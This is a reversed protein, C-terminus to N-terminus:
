SAHIKIERIKEMYEGSKSTNRGLTRPQTQPIVIEDSVPEELIEGTPVEDVPQPRVDPLAVREEVLPQKESVPKTVIREDSQRKAAPADELPEAARRTDRVRVDNNGDREITFDVV